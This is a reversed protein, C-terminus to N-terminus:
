IAARDLHSGGSEHSLRGPCPRRWRWPLGTFRTWGHGRTEEAGCRRASRAQRLRAGIGATRRYANPCGRRASTPQRSRARGLGIVHVGHEFKAASTAVSSGGGQDELLRVNKEKKQNPM